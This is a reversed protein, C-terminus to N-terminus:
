SPSCSWGYWASQGTLLPENQVFANYSGAPGNTTTTSLRAASCFRDTSVGKTQCADLALATTAYNGLFRRSNSGAAQGNGIPTCTITTSPTVPATAAGKLIPPIRQRIHYTQADAGASAIMATVALIITTNRM